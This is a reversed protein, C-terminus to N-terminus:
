APRFGNFTDLLAALVPQLQAALAADLAYPPTEEMYSRQALELQVAHVGQAPMGYARTIYGGRFRGNLVAPHAPALQRAQALLREALGAGCSAGDATGFNFVPLAGDFLHPIHSRISHADWLLAYGHQAKIRALEAQLAQHYPQWYRALRRAVEADDPAHGDLYLAAGDFTTTPCIGTTNQGPYLNQNDPPRNLDVVYRSYHPQLMSAELGAAFGYLQEIHWDTDDLQAGVATMGARIEQPLLTGVHPMSILLPGSGQRLTFIPEQTMIMEEFLM